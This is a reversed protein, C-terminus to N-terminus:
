NGKVVRGWVRGGGGVVWLVQTTGYNGMFVASYSGVGMWEQCLGGEREAKTRGDGRALILEKM